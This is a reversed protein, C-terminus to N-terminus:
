NMPTIEYLFEKYDIISDRNKDFRDMLIEIERNTLIFKNAKMFESIDEKYIGITYKKKISNFLDFGSYEDNLGMIKRYYENSKEGTIINKFLLCIMKQTDKSLNNMNFQEDMIKAASYKKPLIIECFEDIDFFDDLNKGYRKFLYKIEDIDTIFGFKKLTKIFNIASIKKNSAFLNFLDTLNFDEKLVLIHRISEIINEQKLFDIFLNYLSNYANNM